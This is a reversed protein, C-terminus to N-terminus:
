AERARREIEFAPLKMGKTRGTLHYLKCLECKYARLTVDAKAAVAEAEEYSAFRRKRNCIRPSTRPRTKM